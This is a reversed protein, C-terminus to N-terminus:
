SSLLPVFQREREGRFFVALDPGSWVGLFYTTTAALALLFSIGKAGAISWLQPDERTTSLLSNLDPIAGDFVCRNRHNWLNWAGLIVLSNAGKRVQGSVRSSLMGGIMLIKKMWDKPLYKCDLARLMSFWFQRSFVCSVLLHDLTEEVQDCLPFVAPHPLGKRALRDATWSKRHATTWMFFKCKGPAWSKWIREWPKFHVAGTFLVEYVSKISFQSSASFQWIHTDYTLISISRIRM